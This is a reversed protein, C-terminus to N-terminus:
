YELCMFDSEFPETAALLQEIFDPHLRVYYASFNEMREQLNGQPLIKDHLKEIRQMEQDFRQKEAKMLRGKFAEISKKIRAMEGGAAAVLTKDVQEAKQKLELEIQDLQHGIASFDLEDSTHQALFRKKVVELPQFFDVVDMGLQEIKKRTPEDILQFSNRLSILPYTLELKDFVGKLQIWYALEGGGGIYCLNPLITEQYVPRLVVNPSFLEPRNEILDVLEFASFEGKGNIQIAGDVPVLRERHGKEIFFLNIPRPQVQPKIGKDVLQQNTMEVLPASFGELVEKVMTKRFIKKLAADDGDVCVLGHKGFLEHVLKRTAEKLNSGSYSDLLPKLKEQDREFYSLLEAKWGEWNELDFLGVPGEQPTGWEFVKGSSYFHNIEAFDHDESAMWYVPVFHYHPYHKSLEGALKITHAIKYLFYLPGTFLNLQHGTTVTFTNTQGLQKVNEPVLLASSAYQNTLAGVLTERFKESYNLSKDQIQALVNEKAFPRNIFEALAEQNYALLEQLGSFQPIQSRHVKKKQM